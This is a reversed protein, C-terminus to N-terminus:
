HNGIVTQSNKLICNLTSTSMKLTHCIRKKSHGLAHLRLAYLRKFGEIKYFRKKQMEQFVNILIRPEINQKLAIQNAISQVTCHKKRCIRLANIAIMNIRSHENKMHNLYQKHRKESEIHKEVDLALERMFPAAIAVLQKALDHTVSVTFCHMGTKQEASKEITIPLEAIHDYNM